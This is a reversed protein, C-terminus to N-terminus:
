SPVVTNWSVKQVDEVITLTGVYQQLQKSKFLQTEKFGKFDRALQLCQEATWEAFDEGISHYYFKDNECGPTGAIKSGASVANGTINLQDELSSGYIKDVGNFSTSHFGSIIAKGCAQSIEDYKEQKAGELTPTSKSILLDRIEEARHETLIYGGNVFDIDQYIGQAKVVYNGEVLKEITFDSIQM